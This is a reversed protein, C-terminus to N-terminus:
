YLIARLGLFFEQIPICFSSIYARQLASAVYNSRFFVSILTYKAEFPSYLYNESPVRNQETRETTLKWNEKEGSCHCVCAGFM